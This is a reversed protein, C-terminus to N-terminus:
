DQGRRFSREDIGVRVVESLDERARAAAFYHHVVRWVRTDQEGVLEAVARVPMEAVLAMLLAEFLLTFGSGERAWALEVQRVGHEPCRVRPVRATLYAQHQFFDLHRWSKESTDHVACGSRECVPCAFRAGPEFDLRLDLRRQGADFSTEVVRWPEQLGLARSFLELDRM